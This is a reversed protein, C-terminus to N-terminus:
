AATTRRRWRDLLWFPAYCLLILLTAVVALPLLSWPWPGLLDILSPRGPPGCLYMYNGGTLWNVLMVVLALALTALWVRIPTGPQPRMRLGFTMVLASVVIAGHLVFYRVCEPEPFTVALDPTLVAQSTGGMGWVWSLEYFRYWISRPGSNLGAGLLAAATVFIAVDCLHLPLSEEISWIGEAVRQWEAVVAGAILIGALMWCVAPRLRDPQGRRASWRLLLSLSAALAGIAALVLWHAAGFFVFGDAVIRPFPIM